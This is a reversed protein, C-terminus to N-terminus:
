NQYLSKLQSTLWASVKLNGAVVQASQNFARKASFDMCQGGSEETLLIGGLMESPKMENQWYANLKGASVMALDLAPCGLVRVDAVQNSITRLAKSQLANKNKNESYNTGILSESPENHNSLRLRRQNLFAGKGKTAMYEDDTVPNYILAEKTKHNEILIISIACHPIDYLFNTIGSLPNILWVRESNTFDTLTTEDTQIEDEPYARKLTFFIDNMSVQIAQDVFGNNLKKNVSLLENKFMLQEISNAAKLAAKKAINLEPSMDKIKDM